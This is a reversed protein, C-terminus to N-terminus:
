TKTETNFQWPPDKALFSEQNTQITLEMTRVRNEIAANIDELLISQMWDPLVAARSFTKKVQKIFEEPEL